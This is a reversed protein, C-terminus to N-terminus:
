KRPRKRNKKRNRLYVHYYYELQKTQGKPLTDLIHEALKPEFRYKLFAESNPLKDIRSAFERPYPKLSFYIYYYEIKWHSIEKEVGIHCREVALCKTKRFPCRWIIQSNSICITAFCKEWIQHLLRPFVFLAYLFCFIAMMWTEFCREESPLGISFWIGIFFMGSGISLIFWRAFFRIFPLPRFIM